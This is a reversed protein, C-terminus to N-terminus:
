KNNKIEKKEKITTSCPAVNHCKCLNKYYILYIRSTNLVEVGGKTRGEGSESFLKLLYDSKCKCAHICM